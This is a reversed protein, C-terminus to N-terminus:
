DNVATIALNTKVALVEEDENLLKSLRKLFSYDAIVEKKLEIQYPKGSKFKKWTSYSLDSKEITVIGLDKTLQAIRQESLENLFLIGVRADFYELIWSRQKGFFHISALQKVEKLQALEEIIEARKKPDLSYVNYESPGKKRVGLEELKDKFEAYKRSLEKEEEGPIDSSFTHVMYIEEFVPMFPEPQYGEYHYLADKGGIYIKWDKQRKLGTCIKQCHKQGLSDQVHIFLCDGQNESLAFAGNQFGVAQKKKGKPNNATWVKCSNSVDTYTNDDQLYFVSLKQSYIHTHTM